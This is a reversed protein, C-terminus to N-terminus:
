PIPTSSSGWLTDPNEMTVWYANGIEMLPPDPDDRMYVWDDPTHIPPSIVMSYGLLGGEAEYITALNFIVDEDVLSAPAPGILNLGTALDKSPPPTAGPNSIIPVTGGLSADSLKVYFGDLPPVADGTTVLGWYQTSVDYDYIIEVDTDLGSLALLDDWTGNDPDLAIPTSFTNWGSSLDIYMLPPSPLTTFSWSYEANPNGAVDQVAGAPITVTYSTGLDFADHAITITDTAESLTASVGTAGSITIGSLDVATVDESFTASVVIDIAVGTAGAAPSESVVTPATTDLVITATATSTDATATIGNSGEVLTVDCSWTTVTPYSVAGFTAATDATLVVTLGESMTGTLTQTAVNTPTTVANITVAAVTYTISFQTAATNPNTAADHAVGAAIDVTVEGETTPTVDFTYVTGSVAVFTGATGNGVTIDGVVFGTVNESFTATMPIPSTNTPDSATSTIEVTPPTTDPTTIRLDLETLGESHWPYSDLWTETGHVRCQARAGDIYFEIPTGEDIYGQAKLKPDLPGPGGYQGVETTTIPNGEIGTIVGVGGAEVETETPAPETGITLSGYFLHPMPVAGDANASLAPVAVSFALLLALVPYLLRLKKKKM